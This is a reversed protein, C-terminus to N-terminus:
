NRKILFAVVGVAIFIILLGLWGWIGIKFLYVSIKRMKPINPDGLNEASETRFKWMQTTIDSSFWNFGHPETYVLEEWKQRHHKRLYQNFIFRSYIFSAILICGNILVYIAVILAIIGPLLETM